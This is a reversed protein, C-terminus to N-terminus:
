EGLMSRAIEVGKRIAKELGDPEKGGAQALDKRGGGGGGVLPAIDKIIKGCDMGKSVAKGTAAFLLLAKGDQSSGFCVVSDQKRSRVTDSLERLEEAGIEEFIHSVIKTGKVEAADSLISDMDFSIGKKKIKGIDKKLSRVRQVLDEAKQVIGKESVNMAKSLEHLLQDQQNFRELIGKLTVGEIRRLGAGPSIERLIKFVGIQGTSAVHTGGCLEMSFDKVSVVRVVSEYKEDFVAVAGGEVAKDYNMVDTKLPINEWIKENVINEINAMEENSLADYHSFDFRLRDPAVLSGAQKVHDGLVQRLAGNLLHTATHNARILNRNLIDIKARVASGKSFEGKEVTGIHMVTQSFKKTDIVQFVSGDKSSIIGIDGV